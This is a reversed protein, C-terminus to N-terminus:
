SATFFLTLTSGDPAASHLELMGQRATWRETRELYGYYEDESLGEIEVLGAMLTAAAAKLRIAAGAGREYPGRYLNPAARGNYQGGTFSLTFFDGQGAQELIARDLYVFAAGRIETLKWVKGELESFERIKGGGACSLALLAALCIGGFFYHKKM